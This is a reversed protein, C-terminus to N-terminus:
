HSQNFDGIIFFEYPTTAAASLVSNFDDLFLSLNPLNLAAM